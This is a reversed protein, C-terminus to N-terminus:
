RRARVPEFWGVWGGRPALTIKVKEGATITATQENWERPSPGDGLGRWTWASGAGLCETPLEVTKPEDGGQLAGVYWVDGRRRAIAVWEGPAGGLWRTDDWAVPVRRLFELVAPPQARYGEPRDAFHVWGSEFVVALALEHASTTRRPHRNDSFTVPTYDMPGVVNRTYPLIAHHRPARAPYTADFIYCEAGRVAEMAMLHPHTRSWGRPVTCGHFNIMLRHDAADRLIDLYHAIVNQKDSQFFDVKLGVVGISKLWALERLRVARPLLRDRPAETVENHPGGSNYWLLIGVSKRRAHRILDLIAEEEVYNWNADVLFYEWGMEAAFDVFERMRDPRRPSDPESWWSWAVRGPRIWSPISRPGPAALDEVLTSEVIAGPTEGIMLVRWPTAWPLRSSPEVAGTKLGEAEDPFRVRMLGDAEIKLRTGCYTEELGAEATLAWPGGEAVRVLAPHCWGARNTALAAPPAESEYFREYAPTWKTSEDYPQIWTRATPPFRFGTLEACVTHPPASTEPFRYRLAVGDDAARCILEIRAGSSARFGLALENAVHRRSRRKGHPMEYRDDVRRRSESEFRLTADFTVDDCVIGLPSSETVPRGDFSVSWTWSTSGLSVAATIRGNPSSVSWEGAAATLAAGCAVGFVARWIIRNM